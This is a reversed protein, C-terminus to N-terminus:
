KTDTLQNIEKLAKISCNIYDPIDPSGGDPYTLCGQKMFELADVAIELKCELEKIKGEQLFLENGAKDLDDSQKKCLEMYCGHAHDLKIVQSELENIRNTDRTAVNYKRNEILLYDSLEVPAFNLSRSHSWKPIDTVKLERLKEICWRVGASRAESLEAELSKITKGYKEQLIEIYRVQELELAKIKNLTFTMARYDDQDKYDACDNDPISMDLSEVFEIYLKDTKNLEESM